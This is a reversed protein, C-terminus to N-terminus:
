RNHSWEWSPKTIKEVVDPKTLPGPIITARPLKRLPQAEARQKYEDVDLPTTITTPEVPKVHVDISMARYGRDKGTPPYPKRVDLNQEGNAGLFTSGVTSMGARRAMKHFRKATRKKDNRINQLVRRRVATNLHIVLHDIETVGARMKIYEKEADKRVTLLNIHLM